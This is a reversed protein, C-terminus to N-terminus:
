GISDDRARRRRLRLGALGLTAGVGMLVLGGLEIPLASAAHAFGGGTAPAGFPIARELLNVATCTVDQGPEIAVLGNGGTADERGAKGRTLNDTCNWSGTAGPALRTGSANVTQRYGPVSSEAVAM